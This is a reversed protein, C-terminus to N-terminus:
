KEIFCIAKQQGAGVANYVRFKRLHRVTIFGELRRDNWSRAVWNMPSAYEVVDDNACLLLECIISEILHETYTVRRWADSLAVVLITLHGSNNSTATDTSVAARILATVGWAKVM